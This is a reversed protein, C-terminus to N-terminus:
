TLKEMEDIIMKATKEFWEVHKYQEYVSKMLPLSHVQKQNYLLVFANRKLVLGGRYSFAYDKYLRQIEKNSHKLLTELHLQSNEDPLFVGKDTSQIGKNKPCVRQCIDCGFLMTKMPRMDANTLAEKMQTVYSTCLREEYGEESLAGPPCAQICLTCDGCDELVYPTTKVIQDVLLVGIFHYTGFTPHILLQNKGMFGLGALMGAFREDIPSIDAYGKAKYGQALFTAELDHFLKRYVLHYDLGYSYRSILGYGKGKFKVQDKPYSLAFVIMTKFGDLAKFDEKLKPFVKKRMAIYTDVSVSKYDDILPHNLLSSIM